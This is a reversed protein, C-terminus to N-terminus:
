QFLGILAIINILVLLLSHKGLGRHKSLHSLSVFEAVALSTLTLSPRVNSLVLVHSAAGPHCCPGSYRSWRIPGINGRLVRGAVRTDSYSSSTVTLLLCTAVKAKARLTHQIRTLWALNEGALAGASNNCPRCLM